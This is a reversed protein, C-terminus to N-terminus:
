GPSAQGGNSPGKAWAELIRSDAPFALPPLDDPAFFGVELSETGPALRGGKEVGSFAAVIVPKGPESYLGVLGTIEVELGTEELVERAAAQEVVEGRDVYGGPVSWLGHQPEGARRMLLVKGERSVITIATIKPDYYVVRGCSPCVPRLAGSSERLELAAACSSCYKDGQQM